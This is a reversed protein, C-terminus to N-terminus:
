TRKSPQSTLHINQSYHHNIDLFPYSIRTCLIMSVNTKKVLRETFFEQSKQKGVLETKNVTNCVINEAIDKTDLCVLTEDNELIPNKVEEMMPVLSVVHQRFEGPLSKTQEHHLYIDKSGRRSPM